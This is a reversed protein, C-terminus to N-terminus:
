DFLNCFMEVWPDKDVALVTLVTTLSQSIYSVASLLRFLKWGLMCKMM